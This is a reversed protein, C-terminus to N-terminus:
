LRENLSTLIWEALEPLIYEENFEEEDEPTNGFIEEGYKSALKNRKEDKSDVKWGEPADEVFFGEQFDGELFLDPVGFGPRPNMQNKMQAYDESYYDPSISSGTSDRGQKIQETNMDVLVNEHERVIEAAQNELGDEIDNDLVADLM